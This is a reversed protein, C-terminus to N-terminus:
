IRVPRTQIFLPRAAAPRASLPQSSSTMLWGSLMRKGDGAPGIGTLDLEVSALRHNDVTKFKLGIEQAAGGAAEKAAPAETTQAGGCASLSLVVVLMMLKFLTQTNM